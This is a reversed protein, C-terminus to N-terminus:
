KKNSLSDNDVMEIDPKKYTSPHELIGLKSDPNEKTNITLKIIVYALVFVFIISGVFWYM